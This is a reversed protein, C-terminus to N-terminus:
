PVIQHRPVKSFTRVVSYCIVSMYVVFINIRQANYRFGSVAAAHDLAHVTKARELVPITLEFGLRPM